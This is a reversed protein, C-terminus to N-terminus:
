LNNEWVSISYRTLCDRGFRNRQAKSFFNVQFNHFEIIIRFNLRFTLSDNIITNNLIFRLFDSGAMGGKGEGGGKEAEKPEGGRGNKNIEYQTLYFICQLPLM